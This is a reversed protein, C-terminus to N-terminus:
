VLKSDCIAVRQVKFDQKDVMIAEGVELRKIVDPHIMFEHIERVTGVGTNGGKQATIQSTVEFTSKTGIVNALTEADKPYNQRHIIFYNVNSLVQGLLAEGGKVTIDSLSQTSLIAHVGASRGQNILNIIQPGAFVSFEDFITYLPIKKSAGDLGAAIVAKLDNIILKGLTEAYAPFALPRLCFYIVAGEEIAKKLDLTKQSNQCDFLYGIESHVMNEIEAILSEMNKHQSELREILSILDPTQHKRVLEYLTHPELYNVLTKLDLKINLTDLIKFITQLYGEALKRYHDESWTRLEIIRDKKSTFGGSALPNYHFSSGAMSFLYFPVNQKQCYREIRRALDLDGKGDVYVLSYRQFIAREIIHSITTTKGSGTTGVALVHCNAARDSLYVSEGTYIEVGLATAVDSHILQKLYQNIKKLPLIRRSQHHAGSAVRKVEKSMRSGLQNIVYCISGMMIGLPCASLWNFPQHWVTWNQHIFSLFIQQNIHWLLTPTIGIILSSIGLLAGLVFISKQFRPSFILFGWVFFGLFAALVSDILVLCSFIALAIKCPTQALHDM